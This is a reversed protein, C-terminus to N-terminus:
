FQKLLRHLYDREPEPRQYEGARRRIENLLDRSRQVESRDPVRTTGDDTSGTGRAPRGLPDRPIMGGSGQGANGMQEMAERAAQHLLQLAQSQAGAASDWQNRGLEGAAQGMAEGAESLAHPAEGLGESLKRAIDDLSKRLAEQAQAAQRGDQQGSDQQARRHTQDLMDQQRKALERLGQMGQSAPGNVSQQRQGAQLGELIKTLDQLMQRLADRSGTETMDRMGDVMQQLEEDSITRGDKGLQPQNNPPMRESLAQVYRQMAQQFLDLLRQIESAPANADMAQELARRAQELAREASALDGEEIRLAGSWLLDQVEALDFDEVDMAHRAARLMLFTKLDDNFLAPESAVRDLLTMAIPANRRDDTVNRRQEIVAAAVPNTFNREPLTIAHADGNGRQGVADEAVPQINVPLGAWPHATLDAWSAIDALRPQGNSLPLEVVLPPDDPAGLRRIDVWAKVLGYDDSATATLRLRSREGPEPPNTFAISPVADAVVTVPWAAVTLRAQRVTLQTSAHLQSELRQSGDSQRQFPTQNGDVELSASGWGGSLVALVASGAPVTITTQDPKLLLPAVGTYSPPTIWVQVADPGLGAMTIAPNLARALRRPADPGAMTAAIVLLLLVAARLGWPDRAAMNPHPLAVRLQRVMAAMRRRHIQWLAQAVPDDTSVPHDALAALPRHDLGSDRELRRAAQDLTPMTLRLVARMTLFAVGGAVGALVLAHLWGPLLPLVDLLALAVLLGILCLIPLALPWLREWLVAAGALFLWRALRRDLLVTHPDAPPPLPHMM